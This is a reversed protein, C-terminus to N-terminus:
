SHPCFALTVNVALTTWHLIAANKMTSWLLNNVQMCREDCIHTRLEGSASFTRSSIHNEYWFILWLISGYGTLTFNSACCFLSVNGWEHPVGMVTLPGSFLLRSLLNKWLLLNFNQNPMTATLDSHKKLVVSSFTWCHPPSLTPAKITYHFYAEGSIATLAPIHLVIWCGACLRM